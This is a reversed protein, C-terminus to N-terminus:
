NRVMITVLYNEPNEAENEREEEKRIFVTNAEHYNTNISKKQIILAEIKDELKNITIAMVEIISEMMEVKSNLVSHGNKKEKNNTHSSSCDNGFICNNDVTFKKCVRPQRKTCSM